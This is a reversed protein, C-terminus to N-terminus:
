GVYDPTSFSPAMFAQVRSGLPLTRACSGKTGLGEAFFRGTRKPVSHALNRFRGQTAENCAYRLSLYM